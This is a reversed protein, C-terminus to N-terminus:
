EGKRIVDPFRSGPLATDRSPWEALQDVPNVNGIQISISAATTKQM